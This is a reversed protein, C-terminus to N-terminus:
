RRGRERAAHVEEAAEEEKATAKREERARFRSEDKAVVDRDVVRRSLEGQAAKAVDEAGRVGRAAAESAQALGDIHMRAGVEWGAAIELDGARLEGRALLEAECVRVRAADDEAQRQQQEALARKREAEDRARVARGLEVAADDVRRERHELLPKLPYKSM